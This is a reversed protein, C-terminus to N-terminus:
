DVDLMGTARRYETLYIRYQTKAEILNSRSQSWQSMADLYETLPALSAEYRNRQMDLNSQAQEMAVTASSILVYGASVNQAAQRVEIEMFRLNEERELQANAVDLRAKKVKKVGEGWHFLPVQLSLMGMASNGSYRTSFPGMETMANVKINGYHTYNLSLGVTPLFDARAMKVQERAADVSYGLMAFEPRRTIDFDTAPVLEVEPDTDTPEIQTDFDCGVVKCLAMRCLDAGNLAKQLNYFIESRRADIRLLRDRTAMGAAVEHDTHSYMTDMQTLYAQMLKVKELVAVYSWYANDADAIVKMRAARQQEAAVNSNIKSLRYAASIKGGAYIPQTLQLGAMYTGKMVLEMGMMDTNSPNYVATANGSLRPMFNTRTAGQVLKAQEVTNTARRLEESTELAMARCRANSLTLATQASSGMAAVAAVSWIIYRLKM